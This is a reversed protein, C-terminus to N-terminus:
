NVKAFFSEVAQTAEAETAFYGLFVQPGNVRPRAVWRRKRSNWHVGPRLGHAKAHCRHCLISVNEPTNNLPNEDKHHRITGPRGCDECPRLPYLKEARLRGAQDGADDGKGNHGRLFRHRVEAGCGCECYNPM